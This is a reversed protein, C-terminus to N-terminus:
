PPMTSPSIWRRCSCTIGPAAAFPPSRRCPREDGWVGGADIMDVCHEGEVAQRQEMFAVHLLGDGQGGSFPTGNADDGWRAPACRFRNAVPTFISLSSPNLVPIGFVVDGPLVVIEQGPGILLPQGLQVFEPAVRSISAMRATPIDGNLHMALTSSLPKLMGGPRRTRRPKGSSSM